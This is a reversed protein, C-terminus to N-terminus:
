QIRVLVALGQQEEAASVPYEGCVEAQLRSRSRRSTSPSRSSGTRLRLSCTTFSERASQMCYSCIRGLTLEHLQHIREIRHHHDALDQGVRHVGAANSIM